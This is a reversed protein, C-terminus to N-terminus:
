QKKTTRLKTFALMRAPSEGVKNGKRRRLYAGAGDSLVSILIIVVRGVADDEVQIYPVLHADLQVPAFNMAPVGVFVAGEGAEEDVRVSKMSATAKQLRAFVRDELVEYMDGSLLYCLTVNSSFTCIFSHQIYKGAVMIESTQTRAQTHENNRSTCYTYAHTFPM